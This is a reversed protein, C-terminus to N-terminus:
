CEPLTPLPGAKKRTFMTRSQYWLDMLHDLWLTKGKQDSIRDLLAGTISKSVPHILLSRCFDQIVLLGVFVDFAFLAV